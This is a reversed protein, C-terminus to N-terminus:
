CSAPSPPVGVGSVPADVYTVDPRRAHTRGALQETAAVGITAMQVWIAGRQMEELGQDDLMVSTTIDATPLMSVVVDAIRVADAVDAYATAGAGV